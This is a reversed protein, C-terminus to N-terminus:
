DRSAGAERCLVSVRLIPCDSSLSEIEGYREEYLPQPDFRHAKLDAEHDEM